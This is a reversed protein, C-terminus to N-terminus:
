SLRKSLEELQKKLRVPLRDGFQAFHKEIDPIEKKWSDIDVKLLEEMDTASISLGKLDLNEKKPLLGIPTKVADVKGEVRDCMWKLVRSNEGFGPWLWRGDTTKRFWNVYFIKPAKDGLKDGMDLWHQFYDGMNYGCFPQMAFPDRRLNGVAGINAATTESSATAGLFVGHDFDYAENVLPVVGARRGGFIFIDIPVGEPKEWDKCIIPCQSAPATFRANPHAAPEKGGAFWDRGKWDIAHKPPEGDMGEWWVDGDDTLACNTFIINEKITDMAVPNSNYSTGPAVGFFGAEPNIAYLRGDPGIKMWAIDDGICEAKWGPITPQIMALNTKGCASPFAGTIHYQKGEPSTFRLILMHEAMWGERRAMASAIRLALCKKGLLANGGYGSGYSWILNEQPFHSIYKKEMPACPWPVDKQGKELPAGVSHLCPIFEGDAGLKDIVKKGVRTMIHMNCVVYPSDTIEIGIKAIPSDVPGMSFPIVYLTRGKMCGTYLSKMTKKLEVPDIWNNTPGTDIQQSTSIYTRAEVRAVDSPDSRFLFSNGRKKLAVAAGNKVMRSMFRAYEEKSGDCWYVDDPLCIRVIEDVWNKLRKNRVGM